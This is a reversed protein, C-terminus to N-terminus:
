NYERLNVPRKPSTGAEPERKTLEEVRKLTTAVRKNLEEATIENAKGDSIRATISTQSAKGYGRDLIVASAAIRTAEPARKNQSIEILAEMAATAHERALRQLEHAELAIEKKKQLRLRHRKMAEPRWGKHDLDSSAKSGRKGYPNLVANAKVAHKRLARWRAPTMNQRVALAKASVTYKKRPVVEKFPLKLRLIAKAEDDLM